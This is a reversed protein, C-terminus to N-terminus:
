TISYAEDATLSIGSGMLSVRVCGLLIGSNMLENFRKLTFQGGGEEGVLVFLSSPYFSNSQLVLSAALDPKSRSVAEFCRTSNM